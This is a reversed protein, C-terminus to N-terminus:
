LIKATEKQHNEKLKQLFLHVNNVLVGCELTGHVYYNMDPLKPALTGPKNVM